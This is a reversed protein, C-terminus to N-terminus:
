GIMTAWYPRLDLKVDLRKLLQFLGGLKRHLFLLRRPPASFRLTDTFRRVADRSRAAYEASGFDFPSASEFPELAVRLMEVFAAQAEASERADFLGQATALEVLAQDSGAALARLLAVYDRRFSDDYTVTAGFDLLVVERQRILFNGFNPDTQVMGWEFFERCYLDLLTRALWERDELSQAQQVWQGLPVGEEWTMTLVRRSSLEPFSQPVVFRADEALLDGFRELYHREREYDAEGHLVARLEEFTGALDMSRRSMTIGGQALKRVMELDSDINDAVDPYQIKLAVPLGHVTARHVQGISASAAPAQDLAEFSALKAEGLDEILVQRLTAFPVPEAQSQLSALIRQAEPPLLDSADISLLQGAKMFAGKLRGLSGALLEAQAIRAALDTSALKEASSTLTARVSRAVEHRAVGAALSLLEKSRSWKSVHTVIHPPAEPNDVAQGAKARALPLEDPASAYKELCAM